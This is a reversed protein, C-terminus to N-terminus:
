SGARVPLDSAEAVPRARRAAVAAALLCLAGACAAAIAAGAFIVTLALVAACGLLLWGVRRLGAAM